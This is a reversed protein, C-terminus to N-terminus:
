KLLNQGKRTEYVTRVQATRRHQAENSSAFLKCFTEPALLMVSASCTKSQPIDCCYSLVSLLCEGPKGEKWTNPFGSPTHGKLPELLMESAYHLMEIKRSNVLFTQYWFALVDVEATFRSTILQGSSADDWVIRELSKVSGLPLICVVGHGNNILWSCWCAFLKLLVKNVNDAIQSKPKMM